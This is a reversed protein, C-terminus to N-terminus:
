TPQRVLHALGPSTLEAELSVAHGVTWEAYRELAVTSAPAPALEAREADTLREWYVKDVRVTLPEEDPRALTLEVNFTFRGCAKNVNRLTIARVTGGLTVRRPFTM